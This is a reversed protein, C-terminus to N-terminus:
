IDHYPIDSKREFIVRTSMFTFRLSQDGLFVDCNCTLWGELIRLTTEHQRCISWDLTSYQEGKGQTSSFPSCSPVSSGSQM